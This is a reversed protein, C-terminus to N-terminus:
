VLAEPHLHQEHAPRADLYALVHRMKALTRWYVDEMLIHAFEGNRGISYLGLIPSSAELALRDAEYANLFVPHAVPTRLVACGLYRNRLAPFLSVLHGLCHEGLEEDPMRWIGDGVECGLDVTVITKGEPALWPMSRAAETLRFFPFRREPIWTVVDPLVSRGRFRMNVLAMPRYRFRALHKVADSGRVLKALIHVPATSVVADAEEDSGHLRVGCVRNGDTLIAEVPSELRISRDLGEALRECVRGLSGVPYVHWVHPSEPKERSYGNAVARGSVRSALKLGLVHATGREVQPPIVSAALETAAAGSWAEVLPIAVQDALAGGYQRRYWDAATRPLSQDSRPPLRAKLAGLLFRPSRLLGFPYSYARGELFVSEGYYGVDRCEGGIGLAAALRNTIFHAGFDYTFGEQDTFSRALGAVQRGSEYVTVSVGRRRLERAALLGALGAGVVAVRRSGRSM